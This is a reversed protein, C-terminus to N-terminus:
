NKFLYPDHSSYAHKYVNEQYLGDYIKSNLLELTKNGEQYNHLLQDM